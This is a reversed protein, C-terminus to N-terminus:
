RGNPWWPDNEWIRGRKFRARLEELVDEMLGTPVARLAHWIHEALVNSGKVSTFFYETWKATETLARLEKEQEVVEELKGAFLKTMRENEPKVAYTRVEELVSRLRNPNLIQQRIFSVAKWLFLSKRHEYSSPDSLRLFFNNKRGVPYFVIKHSKSDGNRVTLSPESLNYGLVKPLADEGPHKTSFLRNLSEQDRRNDALAYPLLKDASWAPLRSVYSQVSAFFGRDLSRVAKLQEDVVTAPSEVDEDQILDEVVDPDPLSEAMESHENEVLPPGVGETHILSQKVEEEQVM